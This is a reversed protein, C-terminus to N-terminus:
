DERIKNAAEFSFGEPYRKMLKTVNAEKIEEETFGLTAALYELYWYTDGMEKKIVERDLPKNHHLVKKIIDVVEGSEGAIGLGALSLKMNFDGTEFDPCNRLVNERYTLGNSYKM